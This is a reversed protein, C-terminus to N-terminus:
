LIVVLFMVASCVWCFACGADPAGPRFHITGSSTGPLTRDFDIELNEEKELTVVPSLVGSIDFTLRMGAQAASVESQKNGRIHRESFPLMALANSSIRLAPAM